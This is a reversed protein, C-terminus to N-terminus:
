SSPHSSLACHLLARNFSITSPFYFTNLSANRCVLDLYLVPISHTSSIGQRSQHKVDGVGGGGGGCVSSIILEHRLGVLRGGIRGVGTLLLPAPLAATWDATARFAYPQMQVARDRGDRFCLGCFSPRLALFLTLQRLTNVPFSETRSYHLLAQLRAWTALRIFLSSPRPSHHDLQYPKNQCRRVAEGPPFVM